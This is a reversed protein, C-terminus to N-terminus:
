ETETVECLDFWKTHTDPCIVNGYELADIISFLDGSTIGDGYGAAKAITKLADVLQKDETNM